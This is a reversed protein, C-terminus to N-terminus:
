DFFSSARLTRSRAAICNSASGRCARGSQKNPLQYNTTTPSRGGLEKTQRAPNRKHSALGLFNFAIVARCLGVGVTHWWALLGGLASYPQM